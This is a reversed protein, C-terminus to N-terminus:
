VMAPLRASAPIEQEPVANHTAVLGLSPATMVVVSGSAAAGAQATVGFM